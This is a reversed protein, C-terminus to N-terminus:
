NSSKSLNIGRPITPHNLLLIKSFHVLVAVGSFTYSPFIIDSSDTNGGDVAESFPVNPSLMIALNCRAISIKPSTGAAGALGGASEGGLLGGPFEQSQFHPVSYSLNPPSVRHPCENM